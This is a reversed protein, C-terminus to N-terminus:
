ASKFSSRLVTTYIPYRKMQVAELSLPLVALITTVEVTDKAPIPWRLNIYIGLLVEELLLM